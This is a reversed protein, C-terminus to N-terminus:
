TSSFLPRTYAGADDARKALAVTRQEALVLAASKSADDRAAAATACRLDALELDSNQLRRRLSAGAETSAELRAGRDCAEAALVAIADCIADGDAQAVAAASAPSMPGIGGGGGGGGGGGSRDLGAGAGSGASGPVVTWRRALAGLALRVGPVDAIPAAPRRVAAAPTGNDNKEDGGQWGVPLPKCEDM